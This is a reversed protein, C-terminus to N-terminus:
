AACRRGDRHWSASSPRGRGLRECSGRLRVPNRHAESRNVRASLAVPAWPSVVQVACPAEDARQSGLARAGLPAFTRPSGSM